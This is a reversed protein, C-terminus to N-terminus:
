WVTQAPVGTLGVYATDLYYRATYPERCWRDVESACAPVTLQLTLWLVRGKM